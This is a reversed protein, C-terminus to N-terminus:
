CSKFPRCRPLEALLCDELAIVYANRYRHGPLLAQEGFLQGPTNLTTIPVLDQQQQPQLGEAVRALLLYASDGPADLQLLVDGASLQQWHLQQLAADILRHRTVDPPHPFCRGYPKALVLLHPHIQDDSGKRSGHDQKGSPSRDSFLLLNPQSQNLWKISRRTSSFQEPSPHWHLSTSGNNSQKNATGNSDNPRHHAATGFTPM